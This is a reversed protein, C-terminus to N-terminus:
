SFLITAKGTMPFGWRIRVTSSTPFEVSPFMERGADDVVQVNIPNRGFAHFVTWLSSAESQTWYIINLEFGADDAPETVGEGDLDVVPEGDLDTVADDLLGDPLPSAVWHQGDWSIVDGVASAGGKDLRPLLIPESRAVRLAHELENNTAPM